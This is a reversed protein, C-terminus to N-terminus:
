RLSRTITMCLVTSQLSTHFAAWCLIAAQTWTRVLPLIGQTAACSPSPQCNLQSILLSATHKHTIFCHAQSHHLLTSTLSTTTHKHAITCHAQTCGPDECYNGYLSRVCGHPPRSSSIHHITLCREAAACNCLPLGSVLLLLQLHTEHHCSPQRFYRRAIQHALEAM